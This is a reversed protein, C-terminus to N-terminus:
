AIIHWAGLDFSYYGLGAPGAQAGFYTYYPEAGPSEYDHNGPVPRTRGFHRGWSPDYCNRYDETRGSPYANDGLAFVTGGIGDLIRATGEDGSNDCEAIDGAGVFTQPAAPIVIPTPPVSTSPANPSGSSGCRVCAVCLLIAGVLRAWRSM